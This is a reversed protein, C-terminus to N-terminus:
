GSALFSVESVSALRAYVPGPTATPGARDGRRSGVARLDGAVTAAGAQVQVRPREGAAQALVDALRVGLPSRRGRRRPRAGGRDGDLRAGPVPRVARWGLGAGVLTIGDGSTRRVAVFDGGVGVVRGRPATGAAHDGRGDGTARGPRGPSGALGATRPPRRRSGASGCGPTPRRGPGPTPRGGSSTTSATRETWRPMYGVSYGIPRHAVADEAADDGALDRGVLHGGGVRRVGEPVDVRGHGIWTRTTGRSCMSDASVRSGGLM